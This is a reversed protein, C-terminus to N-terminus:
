KYYRVNKYKENLNKSQKGATFELPAPIKRKTAGSGEGMTVATNQTGLVIGLM